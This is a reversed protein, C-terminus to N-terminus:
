YIRTYEREVVRGGGAIDTCAVNYGRSQVITCESGQPCPEVTAPVGDRDIDMPVGNVVMSVPNTEDFFKYVSFETCVAPNGWSFQFRQEEGSVVTTNASDAIDGSTVNGMCAISVEEPVTSAGSLVKFPSEGTRPLDHYLACEIGASAAQFATESTYAISSLQFQKLTLNLLSASVGLLVGMLLLTVLLTIGDQNTSTRMYM